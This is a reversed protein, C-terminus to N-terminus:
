HPVTPAPHPLTVAGGSVHAVAGNAARNSSLVSDQVVVVGGAVSLAGASLGALHVHRLEVRGATVNIATTPTPVQATRSQRKTPLFTCNELELLASAAYQLSGDLRLGVLQTPPAGGSWSLLVGVTSILTAGGPAAILSLRGAVYNDSLEVSDLQHTGAIVLRQPGTGGQQVAALLTATLNADSDVFIEQLPQM